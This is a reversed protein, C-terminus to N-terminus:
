SLSTWGGACWREDAAVIFSSLIHGIESLWINNGDTPESPLKKKMFWKSNKFLHLVDTNLMWFNSAPMDRDPYITLKRYKLGEIGFKYNQSDNEKYQITLGLTASIRAFLADTTPGLDPVKNDRTADIYMANIQEEGTLTTASTSTKPVWETDTAPVVGGFTSTPTIYVQLGYPTNSSGDGQMFKTAMTTLHDQTAQYMKVELAKIRTWESDGARNREDFTLTIPNILNTWNYTAKLLKNDQDASSIVAAQTTGAFWTGLGDQASVRNPDYSLGGNQKEDKEIFKMLTPHQEYAQNWFKAPINPLVHTNINYATAM